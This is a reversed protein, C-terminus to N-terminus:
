SAAHALPKNPLSVHLSFLTSKLLRGVQTHIAYKEEINCQLWLHSQTQKQKISLLIQLFITNYCPHILSMASIIGDSLLQNM